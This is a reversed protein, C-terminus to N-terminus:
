FPLDRDPVQAPNAIGTAAPKERDVLWIMAKGNVPFADLNIKIKDADIFATGIERWFTKRKGNEDPQGYECPCTVRRMTAKESM